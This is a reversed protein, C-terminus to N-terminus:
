PLYPNARLMDPVTDVYSYSAKTQRLIAEIEADSPTKFGNSIRLEVATFTSWKKLTVIGNRDLYFELDFEAYRSAGVQVNGPHTKEVFGILDPHSGSTVLVNYSSWDYPTSTFPKQVVLGSWSGRDERDDYIGYFDDMTLIHRHLREIVLTRFTLPAPTDIKVLVSNEFIPENRSTRGVLGVLKEM